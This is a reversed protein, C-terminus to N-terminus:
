RLMAHETVAWIDRSGVATADTIGTVGPVSTVAWRRGTFHAAYPTGGTSGFAWVDASGLVLESCIAPRQGGRHQPPLLGATWTRGSLRLWHGLFDFVWVDTASRARIVDLTPSTGFVKLVRAPLRVRLWGRGNWHVVIPEAAGFKSTATGVAWADASGVATVSHLDVNWGSVSITAQVRWGSPSAAQAPALGASVALATASGATLFTRLLRVTM